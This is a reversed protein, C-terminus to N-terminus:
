RRVKFLSDDRTIIDQKKSFRNKRHADAGNSSHAALNPMANHLVSHYGLWRSMVRDVYQYTESGVMYGCKVVPDRYYRAESLHLIFFSVDSWLYPNKGYKRALAMADSVHGFGGNYAALVFKKREQPNRIMSFRGEQKSIIRAATMINTEPDFLNAPNVGMGSATSPMIQMLGRAGAWSVANKDFGSEQYCQSALLKWDWGTIHSARLFLADYNSVIGKNKSYLVPQSRQVRFRNASVNNMSAMVKARTSDSYWANLEEQLDPSGERAAWSGHDSNAGCSKLGNGAIISQPLECAILDVKAEKLQRIMEATDKAVEMRLRMGLHNAFAEAMMFQLGLSRNRYEYYTDPGNVTIAILEGSQEIESLDPSIASKAENSESDISASLAGPHKKCGIFVALILVCLSLKKFM